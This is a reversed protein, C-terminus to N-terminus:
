IKSNKDQHTSKNKSKVKSDETDIAFPLTGAVALAALKKKNRSIFNGTKKKPAKSFINSSKM